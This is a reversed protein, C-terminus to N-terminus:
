NSKNAQEEADLRAADLFDLALRHMYSSEGFAGERFAVHSGQRTCVLAAHEMKEFLGFPIMEKVCVPDDQASLVLAPVLNGAMNEMPNYRKLYDDFSECGAMPASRSVFEQLTTSSAVHEYHESTSLVEEHAELFHNKLRKLLYQALLPSTKDAADFTTSIDYGPSGVVAAQVPGGAPQQGVYNVIGGSGASFGCAGVFSAEPYLSVARDIMEKTDDPCGMVNYKPVTLPGCHARRSLFM